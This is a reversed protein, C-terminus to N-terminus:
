HLRKQIYEAWGQSENAPLPNNLALTYEGIMIPVESAIEKVISWENQDWLVEEDSVTNGFRYIHTDFNTAGYTAEPFLSTWKGKYSTWAWNWDMIIMPVTMSLGAERAARIADQSFTILSDRSISSGPENLVEVGYCSSNEQCINALAVVADLSWKKNWETDWYVEQVHCGGHSDGNQNGPAGHLDLMVYIDYQAAWRFIKDIYPRYSTYSPMIHSLNGMRDADGSPANPNGTMNVVNWYGLPLRLFNIGFDKMQQFDSEIIQKDLWDTM